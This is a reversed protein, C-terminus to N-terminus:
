QHKKEETLKCKICLTTWPVSELRNDAISSGCSVCIGFTNEVIRRLAAEIALIKQQSNKSMTALITQTVKSSAEDVFDNVNHMEDEMLSKVSEDSEILEELVRTRESLLLQKYHELQKKTM